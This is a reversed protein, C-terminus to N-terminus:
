NPAQQKAQWAALLIPAAATEVCATLKTKNGDFQNQCDQSISLLAASTAATDIGTVETLCIHFFYERAAAPKLGDTGYSFKLLHQPVPQQWYGDPANPYRKQLATEAGARLVGDQRVSIISEVLNAQQTCLQRMEDASVPIALLGLLILYNKM